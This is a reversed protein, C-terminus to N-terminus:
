LPIGQPHPFQQRDKHPGVSRARPKRKPHPRMFLRSSYLIPSVFASNRPSSDSLRCEFTANEYRKLRVCDIHSGPKDAICAGRHTLVVPPSAMAPLGPEWLKARGGAVNLCGWFM